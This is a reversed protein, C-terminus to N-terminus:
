IVYNQKLLLILLTANRNTVSTLKSIFHDTIKALVSILVKSVM